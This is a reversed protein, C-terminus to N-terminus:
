KEKSGEVAETTESEKQRSPETRVEEWGKWVYDPSIMSDYYGPQPVMFFVTEVVGTFARYLTMGIGKLPGIVYGVGGRDRATLYTQKPLEVICTAANTVGRTLKFAMKEVIADPRQAEQAFVSSSVSMSMFLSLAVVLTRMYDGKLPFAINVTNKYCL